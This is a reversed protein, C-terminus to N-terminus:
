RDDEWGDPYFVEGRATRGKENKATVVCGVVREDGRADIDGLIAEMSVPLEYGQLALAEHEERILEAIHELSNM